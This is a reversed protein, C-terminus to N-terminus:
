YGIFAVRTPQYILGQPSNQLVKFTIDPVYMEQSIYTDTEPNYFSVMMKKEYGSRFSTRLWTMFAQVDSHRMIPTSFEVKGVRHSLATRHLVGNADRFSDLDLTSYTVSYSDIGIYKMNLQGGGQTSILYNNYAM